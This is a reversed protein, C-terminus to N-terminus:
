RNTAPCEIRQALPACTRASREYIIGCEDPNTLLNKQLKEPFYFSKTCRHNECCNNTNKAVSPSNNRDPIQWQLLVGTAYQFRSAEMICVCLSCFRTSRLFFLLIRIGHVIHGMFWSVFICSFVTGTGRKENKVGGVCFKGRFVM